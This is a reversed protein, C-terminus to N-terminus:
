TANYRTTVGTYGSNRRIMGPWTVVLGRKPCAMSATVRPSTRSRTRSVAPILAAAPEQHVGDHGSAYSGNNEFFGEGVDARAQDSEVLGTGDIGEESALCKEAVLDAVQTRIENCIPRM